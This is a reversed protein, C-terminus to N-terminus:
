ISVVRKYFGSFKSFGAQIDLEPLCNESHSITNKYKGSDWTFIYCKSKTLVWTVEDEKMYEDLSTATLINFPSNNFYLINNLINTNLQVQYDNWSWSVTIIGETILYKEM